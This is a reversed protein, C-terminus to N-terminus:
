PLLLRDPSIHNAANLPGDAFVGMSVFIECINRVYVFVVFLM